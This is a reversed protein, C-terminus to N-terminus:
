RLQTPPPPPPAERPSAFRLGSLDGGASPLLRLRRTAFDISVRRFLKLVDMGLLIAPRDELGLEKFVALDAFAVPLDTIEADAVNLRRTRTYHVNVSAGTVTTLELVQAANLRGRGILRDRLMGNGITVPSGTDVIAFVRQGEVRADALVLRGLRTRARVVITDAPWRAGETARSSPAVSIERREFDFTVRQNELSDVGLMGQAGIHQEFLAPARIDRVTRRGLDLRPIIATPVQRVDAMSALLVDGGPTLQLRQALERSIVTREAGTDVIFDFPGNGGVAVPVTMRSLQDREYNLTEADGRPAPPAAPQQTAAPNPGALAVSGLAALFLHRM